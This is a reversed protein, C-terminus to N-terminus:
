KGLGPFKFTGEEKEAAEERGFGPLGTDPEEKVEVDLFEGVGPVKDWYASVITRKHEKTLGEGLQAKLLVLDEGIDVNNKIIDFMKDIQGEDVDAVKNGQVDYLGYGAKTSGAKNARILSALEMARNHRATEKFKERNLLTDEEGMRVRWEDYAKKQAAADAKFGTETEFKERAFAEGRETAAKEVDFEYEGRKAKATAQATRLKNIYEQWESAEMKERFRQQDEMIQSVAPDTQAVQRPQVPAGKSLAFADGLVALAKGVGRASAIAQLRKERAEDYEPKPAELSMLGGLAQAESFPLPEQGIPVTEPTTVTEQPPTTTEAVLTVNEKPQLNVNDAREDKKTYDFDPIAM